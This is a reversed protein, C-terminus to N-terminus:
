CHLTVMEAPKMIHFPINMETKSTSTTVCGVVCCPIGNGPSQQSPTILSPPRVTKPLTQPTHHHSNRVSDHSKITAAALIM